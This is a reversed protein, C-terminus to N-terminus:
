LACFVELYVQPRIWGLPLKLMEIRRFILEGLMVAGIVTFSLSFVV